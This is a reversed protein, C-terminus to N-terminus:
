PHFHGLSLFESFAMETYFPPSLHLWTPCPTMWVVLRSKNEFSFSLRHWQTVIYCGAVTLTTTYRWPFYLCLFVSFKRNTRIQGQYAKYLDWPEQLKEMIFNLSKWPGKWPGFVIKWPSEEINLIQKRYSYFNNIYWKIM